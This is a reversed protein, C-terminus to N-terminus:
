IAQVEVDGTGSVYITDTKQVPTFPDGTDRVFCVQATGAPVCITYNEEGPEIEAFDVYCDDSSLNKVLFKWSSAELSKGAPTTGKFEFAECSGALTKRIVKVTEM